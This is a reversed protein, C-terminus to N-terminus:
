LRPTHIFGIPALLGQDVDWPQYVIPRGGVGVSVGDERVLEVEALIFLATNPYHVQAHTVENPTLLVQEGRTTTGKVEVQIEEDSRRCHFDYSERASVDRVTWGADRFHQAAADMARREVARRDDVSARFGQGRADALVTVAAVADAVEGGPRQGVPRLEFVIADRLAGDVDPQRRIFHGVCEMEGEYRVGGKGVIKFLHLAKNRSVHDLIARNGGDMMDGHQGEGTYEYVGDDRWVDRYGYQSGSEGSFLMVIPHKTPTSIGGRQQGGFQDHLETRIYGEDITFTPVPQATMRFAGKEKHEARHISM